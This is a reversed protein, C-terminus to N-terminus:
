VTRVLFLAYGPLLEQSRTFRICIPPGSKPKLYSIGRAGEAGPGLAKLVSRGILEAETYGTLAAAAGNAAAIFGAKDALFVAEAVRQILDEGAGGPLQAHLAPRGESLEVFVEAKAGDELAAPIPPSRKVPLMM